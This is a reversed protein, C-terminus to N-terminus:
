TRPGAGPETPAQRGPVAVDVSPAPEATTRPFGLSVLFAAVGMGGVIWFVAELAGGLLGALRALMAPDMDAIGGHALIRSTAEAPITPDKALAANIVGGGVGVALAGGITRFFMTSATAVGREHFKVSTQVCIVVATNALGMGVGFALTTWRLAWLSDHAGFLALVLGSVLTIALGLWIFLRFGFRPILRGAITSAVPWGVIMPTIASGAQTPTGHLLAQVYLPVFTLIGFMSGGILAGVASSVALVPRSFLAFSLVPEKARREVAAFAALLVVAAAGAIVRDAMRPRDSAVLLAGVGATLLAAGGWDLSRERKDVNEHLYVVLVFAAAIGLPINML